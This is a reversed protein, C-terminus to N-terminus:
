RFAETRVSASPFTVPSCALLVATEANLLAFAFVCLPKSVAVFLISVVVASVLDATVLVFGAIFPLTDAVAESFDTAVILLRYYM